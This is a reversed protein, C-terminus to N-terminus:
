SGREVVEVTFWLGQMTIRLYQVKFFGKMPVEPFAM